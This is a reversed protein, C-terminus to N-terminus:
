LALPDTGQHSVIVTRDPPWYGVFDIFILTSIFRPRADLTEKRLLSVLRSLMVREVWCPSNSRQFRAVLRQTVTLFIRRSYFDCLSVYPWMELGVIELSSLVGCSCITHIACIQKCLCPNRYNCGPFCAGRLECWANCLLRAAYHLLVHEALCNSKGVRTLHSSV